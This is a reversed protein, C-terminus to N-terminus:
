FIPIPIIFVSKSGTASAYEFFESKSYIPTLYLFQYGEPNITIIPLMYSQCHVREPLHEQMSDPSRLDIFM